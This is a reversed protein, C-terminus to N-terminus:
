GIGSAAIVIVFAGVEKSITVMILQDRISVSATVMGVKVDGRVGVELMVAPGDGVSVSELKTRMM